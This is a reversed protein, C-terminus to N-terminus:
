ELPRSGDHGSPESSIFPLHTQGSPEDGLFLLHEIWGFGFGIFHGSSEDITSPLHRHGSPESIDFSFHTQGSSPEEGILPLHGFGEGGPESVNKLTTLFTVLLSPLEPVLFGDSKVMVTVPLSGDGLENEPEELPVETVNLAPEYL